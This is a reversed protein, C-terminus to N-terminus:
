ARSSRASGALSSWAKWRVCSGGALRQARLAPCDADLACRGDAFPSQVVAVQQLENLRRQGNWHECVACNRHQQSYQMRGSPLYSSYM